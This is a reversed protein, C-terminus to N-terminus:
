EETNRVSVSCYKRRSILATVKVKVLLMRAEDEVLVGPVALDLAQAKHICGALLCGEDPVAAVPVPVPVSRLALLRVFSRFM